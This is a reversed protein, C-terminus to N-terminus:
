LYTCCWAFNWAHGVHWGCMVVLCLWTELHGGPLCAPRQAVSCLTRPNGGRREFPSTAEDAHAARLHAATVPQGHAGRVPAPVGGHSSPWCAAVHRWRPISSLFVAVCGPWNSTGAGDTALIRKPRSDSYGPDKPVARWKKPKMIEPTYDEHFNM